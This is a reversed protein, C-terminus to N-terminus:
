NGEMEYQISKYLWAHMKFSTRFLMNETDDAEPTAQCEGPEKGQVGSAALIWVGM